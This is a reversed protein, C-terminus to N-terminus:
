RVAHEDDEAALGDRDPPCLAARRQLYASRYVAYPDLATAEVQELADHFRAYGLFAEGTGWAAVAEAPVLQSLAVTTVLTAGVDRLTTPGLVPLVLFPGSPLGWGCLADALTFPRPPYGMEAAPDRLGAIGFTANIGFRALANATRDLDGAALGSIATLPEGLNALIQGLGQRIEPTTAAHYAEALPALLHSRVFTNMGHIRRNVSEFPDDAARAPWPSLPLLLFLCLAMWRPKNLSM